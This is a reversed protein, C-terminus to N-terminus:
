GNRRKSAVEGLLRAESDILGDGGRTYYRHASPHALGVMTFEVGSRRRRSVSGPSCDLEAQADGGLAAVVRPKMIGLQEDLFAECWARFSPNWRGPFQGMPGGVEKFGIYINTFFIERSRIGAADLLRHTNRWTPTRPHQPNGVDLHGLRRQREYATVSSLNHGVLMIGGFPFRPLPEGPKMILGAAASFARTGVGRLSVPVPVVGNPYDEPGLEDILAWFHNM